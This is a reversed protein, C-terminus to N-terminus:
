EDGKVEPFWSDEEPRVGAYWRAFEDWGSARAWAGGYYAPNYTSVPAYVALGRANAYEATVTGNAAFLSGDMYELLGRGLAALEPNATGATVVRVLDYIDKSDRIRFTQAKKKAARALDREGSAMFAASWAKLRAALGELAGARLASHTAGRDFYAYFERFAEVAFGATEEPSASTKDSLKGLFWPYYYGSSYEDEESGVIVDAQGRLEYAVEATQMRCADSAYVDVGGMEKLALALEAPSIHSGTDTDYSIGRPGGPLASKEWGSGHNWVILMYRKAPFNNKAWKGFEALHRWDGMDVAPLEQLVPSTITGTDVGVGVLYRRSGSWDGESQDYGASRGLEAVVNMGPTSGVQEMENVDAMGFRELDNRANLYVMVTIDKVVGAPVPSSVAPAPIASKVAEGWVVTEAAAGAPLLLLLSFVFAM